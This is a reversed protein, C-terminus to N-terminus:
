INEMRLNHYVGPARWVDNKIVPDHERVDDTDVEGQGDTFIQLSSFSVQVAHHHAVEEALM